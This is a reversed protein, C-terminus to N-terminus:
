MDVTLTSVHGNYTQKGRTTLVRVIPTYAYKCYLTIMM